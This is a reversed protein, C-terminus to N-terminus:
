RMGLKRLLCILNFMRIDVEEIRAGVFFNWLVEQIPGAPGTFEVTM